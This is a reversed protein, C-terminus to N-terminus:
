DNYKKNGSKENPEEKHGTNKQQSMRNKTTQLMNMFAGQLVKMIAIRFDEDPLELM